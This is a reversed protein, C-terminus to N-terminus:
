KPAAPNPASKGYAAGGYAAGGTADGKQEMPPKDPTTNAKKGGSCAVTAVSVLLAPVFLKKM